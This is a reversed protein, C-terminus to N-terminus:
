IGEIVSPMHNKRDELKPLEMYTSGYIKTLFEKTKTPVLFAEGEFSLKVGSGFISKDIAEKEYSYAGVLNGMKQTEKNAALNMFFNYQKRIMGASYVKNLLALVGNKWRSPSKMKTQSMKAANTFKIGYKQVKQMISNDPINDLPFIDIFIGHHMEINEISKEKYVTNNLRIKAYPFVVIPTNEPTQLTFQPYLETKCIKLFEIYDKRPMGLDVDDDWPIFGQHRIAGLATGGVLYYQLNHKECIRRVEILAELCKLQVKRTTEDIVLEETM